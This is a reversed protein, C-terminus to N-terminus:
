RKWKLVLAEDPSLVVRVAKARDTSHDSPPLGGISQLAELVPEFNSAAIREEILEVFASLATHNKFQEATPHDDGLRVFFASYDGAEAVSEIVADQALQRAAIVPDEHKAGKFWGFM